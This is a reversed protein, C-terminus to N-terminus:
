CKKLLTDYREADGSIFAKDLDETLDKQLETIFAAVKMDNASDLSKQFNQRIKDFDNM